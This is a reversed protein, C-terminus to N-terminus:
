KGPFVEVAAKGDPCKVEFIKAAAPSSIATWTMEGRKKVMSEGAVPSYKSLYGVFLTKGGDCSFLHARVAPKEEHVFPPRNSADDAFYSKGDDTTFYLQAVGAPVTTAALAATTPRSAAPPSAANPAMDIDLVATFYRWGRGLFIQDKLVEDMSPKLMGEFRTKGNIVVTIPKSLDVMQDNFYFRLTEVNDTKAEVKNPTTMAAQISHANEEVIVKGSGRRLVYATEKGSSLPQYVQVWDIRNFTPDPRNSRLNVQQPYINRERARMAQYCKEAIQPSPVHGLNRTEEYVVDYKFNRLIGVIAASQNSVIVKDTTDHWVVPLVNKLNLLRVRQWDASAAGALPNIAAFYTTYHLALNWTAHGAMGHGLMYVRKPDINVRTTVHHMAQIVSNMGKYSPGYLEDLNLLPMVLVSDPHQKMEDTVWQTYLKVVDDPKPPNDPDTIIANAAPLRLVLPWQRTRDYNAPVGLFYQVDHPGIRENVYAPGPPLAPWALHIRCMRGITGAPIGSKDLIKTIARRDEGSDTLFYKELWVQADYLKGYDAPNYNPLEAAYIKELAQRPMLEDPLELPKGWGWYASLALIALTFLKTSMLSLIYGGVPL